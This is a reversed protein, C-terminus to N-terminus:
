PFIIHNDIGEFLSANWVLISYGGSPCSRTSYSASESKCHSVTKLNNKPEKLNHM